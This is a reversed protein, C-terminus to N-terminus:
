CMSMNFLTEVAKIGILIVLNHHQLQAGDEFDKAGVEIGGVLEITDPILLPTNGHELGLENERNKNKNKIKVKKM